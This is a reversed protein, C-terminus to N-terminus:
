CGENLVIGKMLGNGYMSQHITTTNIAETEDRLSLRGLGSLVLRNRIVAGEPPLTNPDQQPFHRERPAQTIRTVKPKTNFQYARKKNFKEQKQVGKSEHWKIRETM